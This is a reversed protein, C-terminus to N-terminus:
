AEGSCEFVNRTTKGAVLGDPVDLTGSSADSVGGGVGGGDSVVCVMRGDNGAKNGGGGKM